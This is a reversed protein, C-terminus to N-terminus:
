RARRERLGRVTRRVGATTLPPVPGVAEAVRFGRREVVRYEATAPEIEIRGDQVRIRLPTGPLIGAEDRIPKPIVLRGARDVTVTMANDIADSMGDVIGDGVGPKGQRHVMEVWEVVEPDDWSTRDGDSGRGDLRGNEPITRSEYTM